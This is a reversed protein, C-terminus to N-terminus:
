SVPHAPQTGGATTTLTSGPTIKIGTPTYYHAFVAQTAQLLTIIGTVAHQWDPSLQALNVGNLIQLLIGIIQAAITFNVTM